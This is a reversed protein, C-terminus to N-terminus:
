KRNIENMKQVANAVRQWQRPRPDAMTMLSFMGILLLLIFYPATKFHAARKAKPTPAPQEVVLVPTPTPAAAVVVAAVERTQTPAFTPTPTPPPPVVILGTATDSRGATDRATVTVPYNGAVAFKSGFFGNWSVSSPISDAAYNETLCITSDDPDCISVIVRSIATDGAKVSLSGSQSLFWTGTLTVTPGANAVVGSISNTGALGAQDYARVVFTTAGGPLGTTDVVVSYTGDAAVPLSSWSSGGDVSYQADGIGSTTDSVSGSLTFRGTIALFAGSSMAHKGAAPLLASLGDVPNINVAPPNLDLNYTASDTNSSNGAADTVQGYVTFSGETDLTATSGQAGGNVVVNESVVGSQGDMGSTTLTLPATLWGNDGVVEGSSELSATPPTLDINITTVGSYATNGAVDTVQGYASYTGENSITYSSGQLVGDVIVNASGVGSAADSGSATLTVESRYWSGSGTGSIILENATPAVSDFSMTTSESYSTDGHSSESWYTLNTVGQDFTYTCGAGGCLTGGSSEIGTISWETVPENATLTLTAGGVCWGNLGTTACDVSGSVTAPPLNTTHPVERDSCGAQGETCGVVSSSTVTKDTPGPCASLSYPWSCASATFYSDAAASCGGSPTTYLTITCSYYATGAPDCEALTVCRRREWITTYTTVTRDPGTYDAIAAGVVGVFLMLAIALINSYKIIMKKIKMGM